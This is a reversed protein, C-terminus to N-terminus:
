LAARTFLGGVRWTHMMCVPYTCAQKKERQNVARSAADRRSCVGGIKPVTSCSLASAAAAVILLAQACYVAMLSTCAEM